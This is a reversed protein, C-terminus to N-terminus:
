RLFPISTERALRRAASIQADTMKASVDNVDENLEQLSDADAEGPVLHALSLAYWRYAQVYDARGTAEGNRYMTGLNRMSMSFGATASRQYWQLAVPHNETVGKGNDYMSGLLYQALMDGRTALPRAIALAGAYDHRGVAAIARSGAAFNVPVRPPVRRPGGSEQAVGYNGPSTRQPSANQYQQQQQHQEERQEQDRQDSQRQLETSGQYTGPDPIQGPTSPNEQEQATVPQTTMAAAGFALLPMAWQRAAQKRPM